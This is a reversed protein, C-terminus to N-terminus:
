VTLCGGMFTGREYLILGDTNAGQYPTPVSDCKMYLEFSLTNQNWYSDLNSIDNDFHGPNGQQNRETHLVLHYRGQPRLRISRPQSFCFDAFNYRGEPFPWCDGSFDANQYFTVGDETPNCVPASHLEVRMSRARDNWYRTLQPTDADFYGPTGSLGVQDYLTIHYGGGPTLISSVNEALHFQDLNPYEGPAFTRCQGQYNANVFLTPGDSGIACNSGVPIYA